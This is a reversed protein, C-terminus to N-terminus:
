RSSNFAEKAEEKRLFSEALGAFYEKDAQNMGHLINDKEYPKMNIVLFDRDMTKGLYGKESKVDQMAIELEKSTFGSATAHFEIDDYLDRFDPGSNKYSNIKNAITKLSVLRIGKDLMNAVLYEVFRKATVRHKSKSTFM